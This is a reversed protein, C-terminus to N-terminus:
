GGVRAPVTGPLRPSADKAEVLIGDRAGQCAGLAHAGSRGPKCDRSLSDLLDTMGRQAQTLPSKQLGKGRVEWEHETKRTDRLSYEDWQKVELVALVGLSADLALVDRENMGMRGSKAAVRIDDDACQRIQEVVWNEDRGAV